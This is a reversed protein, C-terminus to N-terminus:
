DIREDDRKTFKRAVLLNFGFSGKFVNGVYTVRHNSEIAQLTFKERDKDQRAGYEIMIHRLDTAHVPRFDYVTYEYECAVWIM